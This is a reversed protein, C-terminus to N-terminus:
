AKAATAPSPRAKWYRRLELLTAVVCALWAAAALGALLPHASVWPWVRAIAYYEIVDEWDRLRPVQLINESISDPRVALVVAHHFAGYVSKKLKGGGGGTVIYTTNKRQIRAYGHWDGAFVYDVRFRDFLALLEDSRAIRKFPYEESLSPPTHQFVFVRKANERHKEMAEDLFRIAPQMDAYDYGEPIVRLFVFLSDGWLFHFQAPGYTKEFDELAFGDERIDHNGPLYFTPYPTPMETGIEARLWRHAGKLPRNTCDGLLVLFDLREHKLTDMIAEFTGFGRTDGIVGFRLSEPAPRDTLTRVVRDFNGFTPPLPLRSEPLHEFLSWAALVSPALLLGLVLGRWAFGLRRKHRSEM